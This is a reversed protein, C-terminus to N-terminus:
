WGGHMRQELGSGSQISGSNDICDIEEDNGGGRDEHGDM